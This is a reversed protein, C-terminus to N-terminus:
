YCFLKMFWMGQIPTSQYRSPGASSAKTTQTINSVSSPRSVPRASKSYAADYTTKMVAPKKKRLLVPQKVFAKSTSPRSTTHAKSAIAATKTKIKLNNREGPKNAKKTPKRIDQTKENEKFFWYLYLKENNKSQQRHLVKWTWNIIVEPWESESLWDSVWESM